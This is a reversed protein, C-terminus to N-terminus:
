FSKKSSFQYLPNFLYSSSFLVFFFAFCIEILFSPPIQKKIRKKQKQQQFKKKTQNKERLTSNTPRHFFLRVSKKKRSTNKVSM